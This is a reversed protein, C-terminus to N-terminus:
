EVVENAKLLFVFGNKYLSASLKCDYLFHNDPIISFLRGCVNLEDDRPPYLWVDWFVFECPLWSDM